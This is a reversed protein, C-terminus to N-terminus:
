APLNELFFRITNEGMVKRIIDPDVNKDLLAQTIANVESADLHTTVTGDYDSGLAINDEGFNEIGYILGSAIGEPTADCIVDEWFGVGILGGKDTIKHM